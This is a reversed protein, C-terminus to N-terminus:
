DSLGFLMKACIDPLLIKWSKQLCVVIIIFKFFTIVLNEYVNLSDQAQDTKGM